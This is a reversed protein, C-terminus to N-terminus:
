TPTEKQRGTHDVNVPMGREDFGHPPPTTADIKFDAQYLAELAALAARARRVWCDGGPCEAGPSLPRTGHASHDHDGTAEYQALLERLRKGTTADILDLLLKQQRQRAAGKRTTTVVPDLSLALLFTKASATLEVPWHRFNQRITLLADIGVSVHYHGSDREKIVPLRDDRADRFVRHGKDELKIRNEWKWRPSPTTTTEPM